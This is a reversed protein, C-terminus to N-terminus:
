ISLKLQEYRHRIDEDALMNEKSENEANAYDIPARGFQPRTLDVIRGGVINFYHLDDHVYCKKIDGGFVDNVILATVACQGACCNIHSWKYKLEPSCTDKSWAKKLKTEISLITAM